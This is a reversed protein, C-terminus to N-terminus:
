DVRVSEGLRIAGARAAAGGRVSAGAGGGGCRIGSKGLRGAHEARWRLFFFSVREFFFFTWRFCM